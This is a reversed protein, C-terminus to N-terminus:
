GLILPGMLVGMCHVRRARVRPPLLGIASAAVFAAVGPVGGFLYSVCVLGCLVGVSLRTYDIRGVIRLYRDGLVTVLVFGVAGACVVVGLLFPLNLPVEARNVAVLVGTRPAGLAVLAFLSFILNATNVGSTAVVFGRDGSGAPLVALVIVAAIASSVGPLYGVAAGALAGAFSILAVTRREITIGPDAQPPVGAGDVADILVPAGFLGAFLPALMGGASLPAAPDIDLTLLGLLASLLFTVGAGTQARKSGETAILYVAIAALVIGMRPRIMPYLRVMVATVPVALPAAFLVALGSGLASLRLAERGRGGIVLRHGPLAMAAMAADPVGLALAPVIDLFTHVVGAALMAAGVLTPPGPIGPAVSALLLAFNNAHLGPTLGSITGLLIGGLVFGAVRLSFAPDVVFRVGPDM